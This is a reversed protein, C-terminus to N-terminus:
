VTPKKKSSKQLTAMKKRSPLITTFLLDTNIGHMRANYEVKAWLEIWGDLKSYLEKNEKELAIIREELPLRSAKAETIVSFNKRQLLAHEKVLDSLQNNYLAQRTVKLNNALTSINIPDTKPSLNVMLALEMKAANVLTEGRLVKRNFQKSSKKKIIKVM